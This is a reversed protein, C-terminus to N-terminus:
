RFNYNVSYKYKFFFRVPCPIKGNLALALMDM